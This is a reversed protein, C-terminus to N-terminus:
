IKLFIFITCVIFIKSNNATFKVKATAISAIKGLNFFNQALSILRMKTRSLKNCARKYRSRRRLCANLSLGCARAEGFLCPRPAGTIGAGFTADIQLLDSFFHRFGFQYSLGVGPIYPDGSFIEGVLHFGGLVRIQTGLGWTAIVENSGDIHLYSAGINGHFLFQEGDGLCQSATLFGFAGYGPPKLEGLGFPLFTGVVAGFGPAENPKYERFLFKAQLLPLAYSFRNNEIEWGFVGGFTLELWDSPGYAVLAWQQFDHRDLRSWSELQTLAGGVVRADDTIFPRVDDAFSEALFPASPSSPAFFPAIRSHEARRIHSFEKDSSDNQAYTTQASTALAFLAFVVAVAASLFRLAPFRIANFVYAHTNM